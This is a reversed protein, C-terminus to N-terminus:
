NSEKLFCLVDQHGKEMQVIKIEHHCLKVCKPSGKGSAYKIDKELIFIPLM